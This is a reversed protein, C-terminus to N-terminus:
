SLYLLMAYGLRVSDQYYQVIYSYEWTLYELEESYWEFWPCRESRQAERRYREQFGNKTLKLLGELIQEVENPLLYRVSGYGTRHELTAGAGIANVLPLGDWESELIVSFQLFSGNSGYRKPEPQTWPSSLKDCTYGALLFTLEQHSKELDLEPEEWDELFKAKLSDPEYRLTSDKRREMFRQLANEPQWHTGFFLEAIAPDERLLALNQVSVQKLQATIGM